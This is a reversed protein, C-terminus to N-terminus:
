RELRIQGDSMVFAVDLVAEIDRSPDRALAIIDAEKGPAISGTRDAIGHATAVNLTAAALADMADVGLKTYAILENANDGHPFVGSDSALILKVGARYAAVLPSPEQRIRYLQELIPRPLWGMTGQELTAPTAGVAAQLAHVHPAFYGGHQKLLAFTRADPYTVTDIIGFGAEIAANVGSADGPTNGGDAVVIRGLAAATTRIAALEADDFTQAPSHEALLSGSNYVNIFDAGKAIQERVMKRCADPGDCVGDPGLVAEVDDRYRSTRSFGSISLPAGSSRIEPGPLLGSAIAERVAYIAIEDARRGNGMDMVTTFGAKVIAEANVAAVIALDADSATAGDKGGPAGGTTLHVHADIMGPMVFRDKLEIVRADPRGIVQATVYGPRIAEIRKGTVIISQESRVPQDPRTYLKGAHIIVTANAGAGAPPVVAVAAAGPLARDDRVIRGGQLVLLPQMVQAIDAIPSSRTAVLDAYAGTQLAGVRGKWGMADAAASTTTKLVDSAPMGLQVMQVLQRANEGHPRWGADTGFAIKVHAAMARRFGAVMGDHIARNEARWSDSVPTAPNDAMDQVVQAAALTPIFYAGSRKLLQMTRGDTFPAHVVADFGALLPLNISEASFSSATVKLGLAHAAERIASLEDLTLQAHTGPLLGLRPDVKITTAGLAAQARVARRCDDAGDCTASVAFLAEVDSRFRARLGNGTPGVLEGAVQMRPGSIVGGAVADAIAFMSRGTNGMDRISTFGAQLTHRANVMAILTSQADSWELLRSRSPPLGPQSTLHTQVDIFGPMVFCCSLDVLRATAPDVSEPRPMGTEVSAIKGQRVTILVGRRPPAGPVLLAEGAYVLTTEPVAGTDPAAHAAGSSLPGPGYAGGCLLIAAAASRGLWSIM